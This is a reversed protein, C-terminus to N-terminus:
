WVKIRNEGPKMKEIPGAAPNEVNRRNGLYDTDLYYPKGNFSEFLTETVKTSGMKETTVVETEAEKFSDDIRFSLFVGEETEEMEVLPVDDEQIIANKENEYPKAGGYYVNGEAFSEYGM